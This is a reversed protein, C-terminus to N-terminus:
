SYALDPLLLEAVPGCISEQEGSKWNGLGALLWCHREAAAVCPLGEMLPQRDSLNEVWMLYMLWSTVYVGTFVDM